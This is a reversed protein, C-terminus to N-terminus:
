LRWLEGRDCRCVRFLAGSTKKMAEAAFGRMVWSRSPMAALKCKIAEQRAELQM